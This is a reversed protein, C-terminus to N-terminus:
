DENDRISLRVDKVIQQAAANVIDKRISCYPSRLMDRFESKVDYDNYTKEIIKRAEDRVAEEIWERIDAKTIGLENYMFQKFMRYKEGAM